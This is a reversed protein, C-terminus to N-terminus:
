NDILIIEFDVSVGATGTSVKAMFGVDCAGNLGNILTKAQLSRTGGEIGHFQTIFRMIGSYPTTVDDADCRKFLYIDVVKNTEVHIYINGIYATKGKPVTYVGIETQSLDFDASVSSNIKAWTAGGGDVRLTLDGAHSGVTGIAYTGSRSVYGRYIRYYTNVLDVATTGNLEVEESCELWGACLGEFIVTQGGSGATTDNADSSVVELSTLVTPTQYINGSTIPAVSTGITDSHGMKHIVSCGKINGKSCELWYDGHISVYPDIATGSGDTQTYRQINSGDRIEMQAYTPAILAVSSAIFYLSLLKFKKM